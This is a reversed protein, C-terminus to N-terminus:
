ASAAKLDIAVSELLAILDKEMGVAYRVMAITPDQNCSSLLAMNDYGELIFKLYHFKEGAIRVYLVRM